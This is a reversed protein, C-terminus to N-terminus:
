KKTKLAESIKDAVERCEKVLLEENEIQRRIKLIEPSDTVKYDKTIQSLLFHYNVLIDQSRWMEQNIRALNEVSPEEGLKKVYELM